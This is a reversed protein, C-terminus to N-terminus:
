VGQKEEPSDKPIGIPLTPAFKSRARLAPGYKVLLFPIPAMVAAFCGLLLSAWRPNLATFMQSAFLPFSAGFISRVVTNAALASAAAMLYMDIIYNISSLFILLISFGLLGGAMMPSWFSVDPYSTFGFWFFSVAFLPGGLMAAELRKEPPVPAPAYERAFKAYRPNFIALYLICGVVGGLSIPLFMLASIGQNFGHGETFVIPYAEFLLYITGFLFSMYLTLAILVPEQFLIKFPMALIHNIRQNIPEKHTELPAYYKDDGTEKRLRQAKKKLLVPPYTEPLTLTAAILCCGAFITLVWYLWRWSVGAVAIWGSVLPGLAPGAFPAVAFFTLAQGRAESKWLDTVVGGSNTLPAAAFIGSLLRFIIISATNRSLACGVQFGTYFTFAIIFVPRRGIEESLPGWLIPGLCYGAVFISITLAGVEQGFGFQEMMQPVIGSPAASAFTANLVLIASLATLYWRKTKPWTQADASDNPEFDVLYPNKGDPVAPGAVAGKGDGELSAITRSDRATSHVSQSDPPRFDPM